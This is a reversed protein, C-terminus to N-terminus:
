SRFTCYSLSMLLRSCCPTILRCQTRSPSLSALFFAGAADIPDAPYQGFEPQHEPLTGLRQARIKGIDDLVRAVLERRHRTHHQLTREIVPSLEILVHAPAVPLDALM